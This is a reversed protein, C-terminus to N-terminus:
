EFGSIVREMEEVLAEVGLPKSVYGDLGEAL